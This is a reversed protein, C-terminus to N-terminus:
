MAARARSLIQSDPIGQKRYAALRTKLELDEDWPEPMKLPKKQKPKHHRYKRSGMEVAKEIGHRNVRARFTCRSVGAGDAWEYLTKSENNYTYVTGSQHGDSVPRILWALDISKPSTARSLLTQYKIGIEKSLQKLTLAKDKYRWTKPM